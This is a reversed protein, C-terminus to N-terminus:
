LYTMDLAKGERGNGYWGGRGTGAEDTKTLTVHRRGATSPSFLSFCLVYVGLGGGPAGRSSCGGVFFFFFRRGLSIQVPQSFVAAHDSICSLSVIM